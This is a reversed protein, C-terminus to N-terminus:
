SAIAEVEETNRVSEQEDEDALDVVVEEVPSGDIAEVKENQEVLQEDEGTLDAAVEESEEVYNSEIVEVEETNEEPLRESIGSVDAMGEEVSRSDIPQMEETNQEPLEESIPKAIRSKKQPLPVSELWRMVSGVRYFGERKTGAFAGEKEAKRVRQASLGTGRIIEEISVTKVSGAQWQLVIPYDIALKKVDGYADSNDSAYGDSNAHSSQTKVQAFGREIRDSVQENLLAITGDIHESLQQKLLPIDQEYRAMLSTSYQEKQWANDQQLQGVIREFSSQLQECFPAIQEVRALMNKYQAEYFAALEKAESSLTQVAQVQIAITQAQSGIVQERQAMEAKLTGIETAVESSLAQVAQAQVAVTQAQLTTTQERGVVEAKIAGMEMNVSAMVKATVTEIVYTIKKQTFLISKLVFERQKLLDIQEMERNIKALIDRRAALFDVRKQQQKRYTEADDIEIETDRSFALFVIMVPFMIGVYPAVSKLLDPFNQATPAQFNLLASYLNAVMSVAACIIVGTLYIGSKSGSKALEKRRADICVVAILDFALVTIYGLAGYLVYHQIDNFFPGAECVSVFMFVATVLEFFHGRKSQKAREFQLRVWREIVSFFNIILKIAFVAVPVALVFATAYPNNVARQVLEPHNVLYFGGVILPVLIFLYPSNVFGSVTINRKKTSRTKMQDVQKTQEDTPQEQVVAM